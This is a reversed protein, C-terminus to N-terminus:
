RGKGLATNIAALATNLHLDREDSEFVGDGKPYAEYVADGMPGGGATAYFYGGRLRMYGVIDGDDDVVDYQEPCAGCTQVLRLSM